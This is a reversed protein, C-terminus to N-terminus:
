HGCIRANRKRGAEPAVASLCYMGRKPRVDPHARLFNGGEEAM